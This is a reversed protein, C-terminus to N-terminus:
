NRPCDGWNNIVILLDDINVLDDGNIDNYQTGWFSLLLLMDDINISEDFNIDGLTYCGPNNEVPASMISLSTDDPNNGRGFLTGRTIAVLDDAADDDLLGNGVLIPDNGEELVQELAFTVGCSINLSSDNRYLLVAPVGEEIDAIVGMDLDDDGDYDLLTISQPNVGVPFTVEPVLGGSGNGLLISLTGSDHNGIVADDFGDNNLDGM